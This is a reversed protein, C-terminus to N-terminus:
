VMIKKKPNRFFFGFLYFMTTTKTSKSSVTLKEFFIGHTFTFTGSKKMYLNYVRCLVCIVDASTELAVELKM